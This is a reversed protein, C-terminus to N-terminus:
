AISSIPPTRIEIKHALAKRKGNKGLGHVFGVMAFMGVRRDFVFDLFVGVIRFFACVL